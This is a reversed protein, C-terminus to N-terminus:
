GGVQCMTGALGVGGDRPYSAPKAAAAARLLDELDADRGGTRLAARLDPGEEAFLCVRLRGTAGLRLRNCRECFPATMAAIFGIRGETGKLRFSEAPGGGEGEAAPELSALAALKEKVWSVPVFGDRNLAFPMLEIFRVEVGLGAALEVFRRLDEESGKGDGRESQLVANIKAPRLGAALAAELGARAEELRAGRTIEAFREPRLTDLSINVRRLGAAALAEAQGALLLGNTTLSIEDLGEIARLMRVLEALNRRVLPEGGTLRVRRIGLGAGVRVVRAIEEFSLVEASAALSIGEPPMCYVCRLNCRDTVSVRLYTIARQYRDLM